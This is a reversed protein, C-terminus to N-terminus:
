GSNGLIDRHSGGLLSTRPILSQFRQNGFAKKVGGEPFCTEFTGLTIGESKLRVNRSSGLKLVIPDPRYNGPKVTQVFMNHPSGKGSTLVHPTLNGSPDRTLAVAKYDKETPKLIFLAFEQNGSGTFDGVCFFPARTEPDAYLAWDGVIDSSSPLRFQPFHRRIAEVVEATFQPNTSFPRSPVASSQPALSHSDPSSRARRFVPRMWDVTRAKEWLFWAGAIGGVITAVILIVQLMPQALIATVPATDFLCPGDPGCTVSKEHVAAISEGTGFGCPKTM